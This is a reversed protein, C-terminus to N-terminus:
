SKLVDAAVARADAIVAPVGVGAVWAGTVSVGGAGGAGALADALLQKVTAVTTLHTADFRPLGGFWRQVYIEELGAERGDFGTITRLDDLAWDVLDDESASLAVTDGFRGFSARM